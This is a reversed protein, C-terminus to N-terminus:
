RDMLFLDLPHISKVVCYRDTKGPMQFVFMALLIAMTMGALASAWVSKRLLLLVVFLTFVPLASLLTSLLWFGVPDYNQNWTM